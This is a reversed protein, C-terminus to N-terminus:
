EEPQRNSKDDNCKKCSLTM